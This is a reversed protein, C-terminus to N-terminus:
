ERYVEFESIEVKGHQYFVSVALKYETDKKMDAAKGYKTDNKGFSLQFADQLDLWIDIMDGDDYAQGYDKGQNDNWIGGDGAYYSYGGPIVWFGDYENENAALNMADKQIIGLNLEGFGCNIVKIRWHYKAGPVANMSGFAESFSNKTEFVKGDDEIEPSGYTLSADFLEYEHAFEIVIKAINQVAIDTGIVVRFWYEFILNKQEKTAM